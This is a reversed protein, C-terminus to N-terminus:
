MDEMNDGHRRMSIAKHMLCSGLSLVAITMSRQKRKLVYTTEQRCIFASLVGRLFSISQPSLLDSLCQCIIKSIFILQRKHKM